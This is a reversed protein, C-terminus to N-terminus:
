VCVVVCVCVQSTLIVKVKFLPNPSSKGGSSAVARSLEQLSWKVNLRLAEQVMSDMKLSYTQLHAQVEKSDGQFVQRPPSLSTLTPSLPSLSPLSLPPSPPLSPPPYPQPFSILLSLPPSTQTICNFAPFFYQSIFILFYNLSFYLPFSYFSQGFHHLSSGVSVKATRKLETVIEHHLQKLRRLSASRHQLQEREFEDEKYVRKGSVRVLLMSSMKCCHSGIFRNSSKYGDILECIKKAHLRCDTVYDVIGESVWTLKSMGPHVKKDLSHIRDRFLARDRPELSRIIHNYDRVILMVNERLVRLQESTQYLPAAFHPM